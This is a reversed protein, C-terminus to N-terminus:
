ILGHERATERPVPVRILDPVANPLADTRTTLVREGRSGYVDVYLEPLSGGFRDDLDLFQDTTFRFTAEGYANTTETGLHDDRSVRDRDFLCVIAGVVWETPDDEIFLKVTTQYRM